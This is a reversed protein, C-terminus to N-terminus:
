DLSASSLEEQGNRCCTHGYTSHFALLMGSPHSLKIGKCAGRVSQKLRQTSLRTRRINMYSGSVFSKKNHTVSVAPGTRHWLNGGLIVCSCHVMEWGSGWGAAHM